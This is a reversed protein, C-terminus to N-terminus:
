YLDINNYNVEYEPGTEILSKISIEVVFCYKPGNKILAYM